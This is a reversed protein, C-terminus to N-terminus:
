SVVQVNKKGAGSAAPQSVSELISDIWSSPDSPGSEGGPMGLSSSWSSSTSNGGKGPPPGQWSTSSTGGGNWGACDPPVWCGSVTRKGGKGSVPLGSPPPPETVSSCPGQQSSSRSLPGKGSGQQSSSCPQTETVAFPPQSYPASRQMIPNGGGLRVEGNSSMCAGYKLQQSQIDIHSIAKFLDQSMEAKLQTIRDQNYGIIKVVGAAENSQQDVVIDIHDVIALDRFRRISEGKKGIFLGLYKKPVEFSDIVLSPLPFILHRPLRDRLTYTRLRSVFGLVGGRLFNRNAHNQFADDYDRSSDGFIQLSEDLPCVIRM